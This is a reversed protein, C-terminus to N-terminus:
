TVVVEFTPVGVQLGIVKYYLYYWIWSAQHTGVHLSRGVSLLDSRCHFQRHLSNAIYYNIM